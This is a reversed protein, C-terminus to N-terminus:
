KLFQLVCYFNQPNNTIPTGTAAYISNPESRKVLDKIIKYKISTMNSLKHAKM